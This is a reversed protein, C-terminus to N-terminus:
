VTRWGSLSLYQGVCLGETMVAMIADLDQRNFADCFLQAAALTQAAEPPLNEAVSGANHQQQNVSAPRTFRSMYLEAMSADQTPRWQPSSGRASLDIDKALNCADNAGNGYAAGDPHSPFVGFSGEDKAADSLRGPTAWRPDDHAEWYAQRLALTAVGPKGDGVQQDDLYPSRCSAGRRAPSLSKM